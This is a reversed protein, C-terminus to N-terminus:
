VDSETNMFLITLCSSKTMGISAPEAKTLSCRSLYVKCLQWTKIAKTEMDEKVNYIVAKGDDFLMKLKYDPIPEVMKIRPIM